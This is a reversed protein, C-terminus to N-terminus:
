VFRSLSIDVVVVVTANSFGGLLDTQGGPCSESRLLSYYGLSSPSRFIYLWVPLGSM